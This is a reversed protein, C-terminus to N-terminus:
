NEAFPNSNNEYNESFPNLDNDYNEAFSNLDNDYNDDEIPEGYINTDTIQKKISHEKEELSNNIGSNHINWNKM